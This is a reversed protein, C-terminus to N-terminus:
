SLLINKSCLTEFFFLGVCFNFINFFQFFQFVYKTIKLLNIKNTNIQYIVNNSSIVKQSIIYSRTPLTWILDNNVYSNM